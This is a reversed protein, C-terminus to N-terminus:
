AIHVHPRHFGISIKKETETLFIMHFKLLRISVEFYSHPDFISKKESPLSGCSSNMECEKHDIHSNVILERVTLIAQTKSIASCIHLIRTNHNRNRIHSRVEEQYSNFKEKNEEIHKDCERSFDELM